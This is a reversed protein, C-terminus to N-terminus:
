VRVVDELFPDEPLATETDLLCGCQPCCFRRLVVGPEVNTGAGPLKAVPIASFVAQKKWSRNAPALPRSCSLCCIQGAEIVLNASVRKRV